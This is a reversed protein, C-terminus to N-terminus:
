SKLFFWGPTYKNMILTSSPDNDWQQKTAPMNNHKHTNEPKLICKEGM